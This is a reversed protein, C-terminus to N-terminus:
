CLAHRQRLAKKSRHSRAWFYWKSFSIISIPILEFIFYLGRCLGLKFGETKALLNFVIKNSKESFLESDKQNSLASCIKDSAM